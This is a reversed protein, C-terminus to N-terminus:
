IGESKIRYSAKAFSKVKLSLKEINIFYMIINKEAYNSGACCKYEWYKPSYKFLKGRSHPIQLWVKVEKFDFFVQSAVAALEVNTTM